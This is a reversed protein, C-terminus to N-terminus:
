LLKSQFLHSSAVLRRHYYLDWQSNWLSGWNPGLSGSPLLRNELKNGDTQRTKKPHSPFSAYSQGSEAKDCSYIKWNDHQWSYFCRKATLFSSFCLGLIFSLGQFQHIRAGLDVPGPKETKLGSCRRLAFPGDVSHLLSLSIPSDDTDGERGNM